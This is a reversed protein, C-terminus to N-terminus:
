CDYLVKLADQLQISSKWGLIEETKRTNGITFKNVESIMRDKSFTYAGSWLCPSKEWLLTPDRYIPQITSGSYEKLIDVIERVSIVNGSCVNLITNLAGKQLLKDVLLEIDEVHVYDRKQHGDSHLVPVINNKFCHILYPILPPHTRLADQRSGYVNFFRLITYPLGYNTHFSKICEEVHLKGISYILDPRCIDEEGTPFEINNEYIASTSAFIFHKCGKIRCAELLNLSTVVNNSYSFAPDEQNSALSSIAALHLVIDDKEIIDIIQKDGVSLEFFTFKSNDHLAWEIYKKFGHSLNDIGIVEYGSKLFYELFHSGIFGAVGTIVIRM